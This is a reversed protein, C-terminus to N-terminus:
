PSSLKLPYDDSDAAVVVTLGSSAPMSFKEPIIWQTHTGGPAVGGSPLIGTVVQKSVAVRHEGEVAGPRNNTRLEYNGSVDTQGSAAPGGATPQFLVAADAVAAGDLTVTGRAPLLVLEKPGCGSPLCALCALAAFWAAPGPLKAAVDSQWRPLRAM